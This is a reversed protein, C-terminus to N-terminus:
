KDAATFVFYIIINSPTQQNYTFFGGEPNGKIKVMNVMPHKADAGGVNSKYVAGFEAQYQLVKLIHEPTISHRM